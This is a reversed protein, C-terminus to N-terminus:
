CATEGHRDADTRPVGLLQNVIDGLSAKWLPVASIEIGVQIGLCTAPIATPRHRSIPSLRALSQTIQRARELRASTSLSRELSM